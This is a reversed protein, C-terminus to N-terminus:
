ERNVRELSFAPICVSIYDVPETFPISYKVRTGKKICVSQGDSLIVIEGDAEIQKRGKIVFTIEDFEPTQFQESWGPPATMHALSYDGTAISSLGFHERIIKNDPVPIIAPNKQVVPKIM